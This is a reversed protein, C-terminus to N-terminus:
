SVPACWMPEPEWALTGRQLRYRRLGGLKPSAVLDVLGDGNVDIWRFALISHTYSGTAKLTCDDHSTPCYGSAPCAQLNDDPFPCLEFPAGGPIDSNRFFTLQYNLACIEDAYGGYEGAYQGGVYAAYPDGGPPTGWKLTPMAIPSVADFVINGNQMGRNRQWGAGCRVIHQSLDLVPYNVLRDVLGDGDFDVMMAEVTPWRKSGSTWRFGYGLNFRETGEPNSPRASTWPTNVLASPQWTLGGSGFDSEGYTFTVPPLNVLPSDSGWAMQQISHLARYASHKASVGCSEAAQDYELTYLRTHEALSVPPEITNPNTPTFVVAKVTRLRSAGTTIETGTRFSTQAGISKGACTPMTEYGFVVAAHAGLGANANEGWTIFNILCENSPGSRYYYDITNGFKDTASTLPANSESVVSTTANCDGIHDSEGFQYVNGDLTYARWLATAGASLKEYRTWSSDNQARFRGVVDSNTCTQGPCEDVAVLPRNGSMSSQFRKIGDLRGGSTDEEILPIGSLSWHAAIGGYISGQSNYSLAISPQMSNRGPPVEIPYQYTLAGTQSVAADNSKQDAAKPPPSGIAPAALTFIDGPSSNAPRLSVFTTLAMSLALLRTSRARPKYALFM